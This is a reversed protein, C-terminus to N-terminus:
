TPSSPWVALRRRGASPRVFHVISVAEISLLNINGLTSLLLLSSLRLDLGIDNLQPENEVVVNYSILSLTKNSRIVFRCYFLM